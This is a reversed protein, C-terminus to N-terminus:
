AYMFSIGVINAVLSIWAILVLIRWGKQQDELSEVVIRTVSSSPRESGFRVDHVRQRLINLRVSGIFILLIFVFSLGLLWPMLEYM